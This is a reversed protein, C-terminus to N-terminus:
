IGILALSTEKGVYRVYITNESNYIKVYDTLWHYCCSGSALQLGFPSLEVLEVRDAVVIADVILTSNPIWDIKPLLSTVFSILRVGIEAITDKLNFNEFWTYQSIATIKGNLIFIRYESSTADAWTEKWPNIYLVEPQDYKLAAAMSKHIHMSTSLATVMMKANTMPGIGYIGDKPSHRNTRIFYKGDTPELIAEIRDELAQLEEIYLGPRKGTQYGIRAAAQLLRCEAMTFPIVLWDPDVLHNWRNKNTLELEAAYEEATIEPLDLNLVNWIEERSHNNSNCRGPTRVYESSVTEFILKYNSDAAM